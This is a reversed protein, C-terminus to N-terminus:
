RTVIHAGFRKRLGIFPMEVYRYSVHALIFTLPLTLLTALTTSSLVKHLWDLIPFHWLYIGYSLIGIYSLFKLEFFKMLFAIKSFFYFNLVLVFISAGQVSYRLTMRFVEDRILFTMMLVGLSLLIPVWGTLHGLFGHWPKRDLTVSLLCGWLISDIRTDTMMYTYAAPDFWGNFAIVTRWVPILILLVIIATLFRKRFAGLIVMLAPFVLYFHEEVALSWLPRWSMTPHALGMNGLLQYVNSFYFVGAMSELWSPGPFGSIWFLITSGGLMFLLAPYLRIFRRIYFTKLTIRGKKRHEALLLRTILFGSIFFFLTVGFGGPILSSLKLHAALVILVAIARIGNLGPIFDYEGEPSIFNNSLAIKM